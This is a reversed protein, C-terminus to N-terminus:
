SRCISRRGLARDDEGTEFPHFRYRGRHTRRARRARVSCQGGHFEFDRCHDPDHAASKSRAPHLYQDLDARRLHADPHRRDVIATIVIAPYIMAGKIKGVLEESHEMQTGVIALADALSGSEEGARTMAIFLEPFVKPYAALAEHFSSGKKISDSLDTAIAKLRKNGSQREIVSLARSLPLGAALMASLNRATRIIEARKVGTGITITLWAPLAFKRAGEKLEVVTSGEKRIQDYVEFRSPAEIIRIEDPVGERRITASFKM